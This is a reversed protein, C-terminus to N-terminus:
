SGHLRERERRELSAIVDVCVNELRQVPKLWALAPFLQRLPYRLVREVVAGPIELVSRSRYEQLVAGRALDWRRCDCDKSGSFLEGRHECLAFVGSDHVGLTRVPAPPQEHEEALAWEIISCDESGSYLSDGVVALARVFDCHDTITVLCAGSALAWQRITSDLSGTLLSDRWLACCRLADHHGEFVQACEHADLTWARATRDISASVLVDGRLDFDMVGATHGELRRAHMVTSGRQVALGGDAGRFQFAEIDGNAKAAYVHTRSAVAAYYTGVGFIAVAEGTATDWMRCHDGCSFVYRGSCAIGIIDQTHGVYTHLCEGTHIDWQKVTYDWCGTYVHDGIAVISKICAKHGWDRSRSAYDLLPLRTLAVDGAASLVRRALRGPASSWLGSTRRLLSVLLSIASAISDVVMAYTSPRQRRAM